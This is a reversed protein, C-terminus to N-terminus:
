NHFQIFHISPLKQTTAGSRFPKPSVSFGNRAEWYESSVIVCTLCNLINQSKGNIYLKTVELRGGSEGREKQFYPPPLPPSLKEITPAKLSGKGLGPSVRRVKVKGFRVWFLCCFGGLFVM